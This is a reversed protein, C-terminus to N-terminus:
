GKLCQYIDYPFSDIFIEPNKHKKLLALPPAITINFGDLTFREIGRTHGSIKVKKTKYNRIHSAVWHLIHKRRGNKNIPDKRFNCLEKIEKEGSGFVVSKNKYKIECNWVSAIEEIISFSCIISDTDHKIDKQKIIKLFNLNRECPYLQNKNINWAKYMALYENKFGNNIKKFHTELYMPKSAKTIFGKPKKKLVKNFFITFSNNDLCGAGIEINLLKVPDILITDIDSTFLLDSEKTAIAIRNPNRSKLNHNNHTEEIWGGSTHFIEKKMLNDKLEEIDLMNILLEYIYDDTMDIGKWGRAM